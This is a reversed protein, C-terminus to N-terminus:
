PKCDLGQERFHGDFTFIERIGLQRAIEFSVCDVLSLRRRNASLMAAVGARHTMEDVWEVRLVPVIDSEFRKVISMGLRNQVLAVTEILVYNSCILVEQRQNVKTWYARAQDHYDDNANLVALFGSTDVFIM